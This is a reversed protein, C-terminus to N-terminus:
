IILLVSQPSGEVTRMILVMIIPMLLAATLIFPRRKGMLSTCNDSLNGVIMGAIVEVILAFSMITGAMASSLGVCNTLFVVFYAALLNYVSAQGIYGIGYGLMIEGDKKADVWLDFDGENVLGTKMAAEKLSVNDKHAPKAIKAANEYGIHPNLATVLMLSKEMNENIRDYNPQIGCACNQKFSKIGDVLLNASELFSAIIVPMSASSGIDGLGLVATDDTIVAVTNGKGTYMYSLNEDKEIELCPEAVGPTYAVAPEEKNTIPAKSEVSLKGRWEKQKQLAYNKKDM